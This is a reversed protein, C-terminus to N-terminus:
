KVKAVACFLKKVYGVAWPLSVIAVKFLEDISVAVSVDDPKIVAFPPKVTAVPLIANVVDAPVIM